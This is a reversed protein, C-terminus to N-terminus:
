IRMDLNVPNDLRKLKKLDAIYTLILLSTIAKFKEVSNPGLPQEVPREM